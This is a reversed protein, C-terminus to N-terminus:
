QEKKLLRMGEDGEEDNVVAAAGWQHFSKDGPWTIRDQFAELTLIQRAKELQGGMHLQLRHLSDHM